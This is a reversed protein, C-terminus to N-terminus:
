TPICILFFIKLNGDTVHAIDGVGLEYKGEQVNAVEGKKRLRAVM